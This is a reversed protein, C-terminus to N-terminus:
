VLYMECAGGVVWMNKEKHYQIGNIDDNIQFMELKMKRDCEFVCKLIDGSDDGVGVDYGDEVYMVNDCDILTNKVIVNDTDKVCIGFVKLFYKDIEYPYKDSSYEYNEFLKNVIGILCYIDDFQDLKMTFLNFFADLNINCVEYKPLSCYMQSINYSDLVHQGIYCNQFINGILRNNKNHVNIDFGLTIFHSVIGAYIYELNRIRNSPKIFKCIDGSNNKISADMISNTMKSYRLLLDFGKRKRAHTGIIIGTQDITYGNYLIPEHWLRDVSSVAIKGNCITPYQSMIQQNYLKMGYITPPNSIGLYEDILRFCYLFKKKNRSKGIAITNMMIEIGNPIIEMDEDFQIFYSTKCRIRMMNYAKNTPSVNMIVNILIPVHEQNLKNISELAYKLQHGNITVLFLTIQINERTNGHIWTKNDYLEDIKVNNNIEFNDM